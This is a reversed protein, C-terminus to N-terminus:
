EASENLLHSFLRHAEDAAATSEATALCERIELLWAALTADAAVDLQEFACRGGRRAGGTEWFPCAGEPCAEFEGVAAELTCLRTTPDIAM